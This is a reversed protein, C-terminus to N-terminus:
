GPSSGDGISKPYVASPSGSVAAALTHHAGAPVPGQVWGCEADFAEADRRHEVAPRLLMAVAHHHRDGSGRDRERLHAVPGAGRGVHEGIEADAAPSVTASNVPVHGSHTYKQSPAALIPATDAATLAALM